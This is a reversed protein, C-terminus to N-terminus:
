RSLGGSSWGYSRTNRRLRAPAAARQRPSRCRPSRITSRRRDGCREGRPPSQRRACRTPSSSPRSRARTRHPRYRRTVPICGPRPLASTRRRSAASPSWRRISGTLRMSARDPPSSSSSARPGAFYISKCMGHDIPGMVFHGRSRIRDRMALLEDETDVNLAVHQVAGPAVPGTTFGAHSVGLQPEISQMEPGQVFALSATDSLRLFAHVTDAVGHMWYLAVLELGIVDTFFEIQAKANRTAIALHHLGNPLGARPYARGPSGSDAHAPAHMNRTREEQPDIRPPVAGAAARGPRAARARTPLSGRRGACRGPLHAHDARAAPGSRHLVEWAYPNILMEFTATTADRHREPIAALVDAFVHKLFASYGIRDRFPTDILVRFLQPDACLVEQTRALQAAAEPLSTALQGDALRDLTAAAM